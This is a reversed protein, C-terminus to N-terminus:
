LSPLYRPPLTLAHKIRRYYPNNQCLIIDRKMGRATHSVLLLMSRVMGYCCEDNDQSAEVYQREFNIDPELPRLLLASDNWNRFQISKGQGSSYEKQSQFTLGNDDLRRRKWPQCGQDNEESTVFRRRVYESQSAYNM